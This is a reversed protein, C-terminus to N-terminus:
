AAVDMLLDEVEVDLANAFTKLLPASPLCEGREIRGLHQTTVRRGLEACRKILETRGMGHLERITRLKERDFPLALHPNTM